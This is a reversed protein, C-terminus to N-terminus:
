GVLTSPAFWKQLTTVYLLVVFPYAYSTPRVRSTDRTASGSRSRSEPNKSLPSPGEVERQDARDSTTDCVSGMCTGKLVVENWTRAVNRFRPTPYEKRSSVPFRDEGAEDRKRVM